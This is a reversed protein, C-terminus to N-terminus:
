NSYWTIFEYWRTEVTWKKPAKKDVAPLFKKEAMKDALNFSGFDIGKLIQMDGAKIVAAFCFMIIAMLYIKKM